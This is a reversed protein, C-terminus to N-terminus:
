LDRRRFIALAIRYSVWNVLVLTLLLALQFVPVSLTERLAAIGATLARFVSAVGGEVGDQSGTTKAVVFTGAGIIQLVVLMLMVGMLGFKTTFPLLLAIIFTTVGAALLLRDPDLFMAPALRSGPVFAALGLVMVFIGVALAWVTLYRGRVLDARTVPLTCSWAAAAFRDDRSLPIVTLFSLYVCTFVLWFLPQNIVIVMYVQFAAFILVAPLLARRHLIFDRRLQIWDQRLMDTTM